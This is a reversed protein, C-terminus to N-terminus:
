NTKIIPGEKQIWNNIGGTLSYINKKGLNEVFGNALIESIEGKESIFIVHDNENIVKNFNKIFNQNLNGNIDFAPFTYSGNIHGTKKIEKKTRIDILIFKKNLIDFFKENKLFILQEPIVKIYSPPEIDLIKIDFILYSNPPILNKIGNSGYALSPPTIFKKKGNIKMGILAIEWAPIVQRLGIQFKFPKNRKYSSDFEDGNEFTGIYHTTIKYHNKIEDGHGRIHNLIKISNKSDVADNIDNISTCSIINLILFFFILLKFQNIFFNNM